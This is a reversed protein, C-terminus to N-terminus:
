SARRRRAPRKRATAPLGGYIAGHWVAYLAEGAQEESALGEDVGLGAVYFCREAGWFLTAMLRRSDVGPPALGADRQRDIEAGLADTFRGVIELWMQRLEPVAHWYESVARMALRHTHWLKAASASGRRLAVKPDEDDRREMFPRAVEYLEDMIRALLGAIVAYKSSFYFYFTARSLGAEEIIQAVSLEHVPVRELLRETAALIEARADGSRVAAASTQQSTRSTKRASSSSV